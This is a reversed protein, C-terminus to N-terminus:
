PMRSGLELTISVLMLGLKPSTRTLPMKPPTGNHDNFKVHGTGSIREPSLSFTEGLDGIKLGVM